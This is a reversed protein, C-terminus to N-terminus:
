RADPTVPEQHAVPRREGLREAGQDRQAVFPQDATQPEAPRRHALKPFSNPPRRDRRRLVTNMQTMAGTTVDEGRTLRPPDGEPVSVL